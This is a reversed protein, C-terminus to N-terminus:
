EIEPRKVRTEDPINKVAEGIILLNRIVADYTKTDRSFKELDYGTIYENIKEGAEIIDELYVEIDRPM